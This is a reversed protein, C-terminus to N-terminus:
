RFSPKFEPLINEVSKWVDRADSVLYYPNPVKWWIYTCQVPIKAAEKQPQPLFLCVCACVCVCVSASIVTM